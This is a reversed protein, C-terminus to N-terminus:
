IETDSKNGKKPRDPLSEQYYDNKLSDMKRFMEEFEKRSELFRNQFYDDEFFNHYFVSDQQFFRSFPDGGYFDFNDKMFPKFGSFISDMNLNMTDGDFSRYVYSYTSDYGILNGEDDYKKDVKINVEPENASNDKAENPIKNDGLEKDSLAEDSINRENSQADCSVCSFLLIILFLKKM